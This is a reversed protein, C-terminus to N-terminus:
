SKACTPYPWSVHFTACQCNAPSLFLRGLRSLFSLNTQIEKNQLEIEVLVLVLVEAEVENLELTDVDTLELTEVLTEVEVELEVLTLVGVVM